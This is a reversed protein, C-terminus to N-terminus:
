QNKTKNLTLLIHAEKSNAATVTYGKATTIKSRLLDFTHGIDAKPLVVKINAPLEFSGPLQQISVPEPILTISQQAFVTTLCLLGLLFIIARKKM